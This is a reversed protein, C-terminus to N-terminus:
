RAVELDFAFVAGTGSTSDVSLEGGHARVIRRSLYLGLGVGYAKRGPQDRGRGFKEFIREVDDPHVGCGRDAVEIRVRGPAEGRVARLEIQAGDPSYKAANSLLNRLVQGIRYRDAWVQEETAAEVVLPHDGPLTEAFRTADELLEDVSIRRPV